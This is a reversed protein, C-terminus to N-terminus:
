REDFGGMVDKIEDRRARIKEVPWEWWALDLLRKQVDAPFRDRIKTAPSGAVVSFPEVDHTVVSKAGICAGHGIDVGPLVLADRGFWVDSGVTIPEKVREHDERLRTQTTWESMDHNTAQLTTQPGISCYRGIDVDGDAFNNRVLFTGDGVTVNQRLTSGRGVKVDRGIDIDGWLEVRKEIRSHHGININGAMVLRTALDGDIDMELDVPATNIIM